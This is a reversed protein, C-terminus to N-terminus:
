RLLTSATSPLFTWRHTRRFRRRHPRSRWPRHNARRPRPLGERGRIARDLTGSAAKDLDLQKQLKEFDQRAKKRISGTQRAIAAFIRGLDLRSVTVDANEVKVKIGEFATLATRLSAFDIVSGQETAEGTSTVLTFGVGLPAIAELTGSVVDPNVRTAYLHILLTATASQPAPLILVRGSTAQLFGQRNLAGRGETAIKAALDTSQTQLEALHPAQVATGAAPWAPGAAIVCSAM